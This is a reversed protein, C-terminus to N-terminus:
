YINLSACCSMAILSMGTASNDITATEVIFSGKVPNSSVVCVEVTTNDEAVRIEPDKFSVSVDTHTHKRTHM